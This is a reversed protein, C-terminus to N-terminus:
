ISQILEIGIYQLYLGAKHSPISRTLKKYLSKVFDSTLCTINEFFGNYIEYGIVEGLADNKAVAVGGKVRM